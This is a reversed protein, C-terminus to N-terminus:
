LCWQCLLLSSKVVLSMGFTVVSHECILLCLKSLSQVACCPVFFYLVASFLLGFLAVSDQMCVLLGPSTLTTPLYFLLRSASCWYLKEEAAGMCVFVCVHESLSLSLAVFLCLFPSFLECAYRREVSVFDSLVLLLVMGAAARNDWRDGVGWVVVWGSTERSTEKNISTWLWLMLVSYNAKSKVTSTNLNPTCGKQSPLM